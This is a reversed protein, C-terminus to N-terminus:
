VAEVMTVSSGDEHSGHQKRMDLTAQVESYALFSWKPNTETEDISLVLHQLSLHCVLTVIM